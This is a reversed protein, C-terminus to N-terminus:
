LKRKPTIELLELAQRNRSEPVFNACILSRAKEGMTARAVDTLRLCRELADRLSGSDMECLFGNVGDEIVETPGPTRTSVVALGCSMAELLAIGLGENDSPLVFIDAMKLFGSVNECYGYFHIRAHSKLGAALKKYSEGEEGDGVLLLQLQADPDNAVLADFANILRDQRKQKSLRGNCLILKDSSSFGFKERLMVGQRADPAFRGADIGVYVVHMRHAPYYYYDVMRSKVEKSIALIRKSLWGRLTVPAMWAYWWLNLKPIIGFYKGKIKKPPLPAALVELSYVNGGTALFGAVFHGLQFQFFGNHVFVVSGARLKTLLRFMRWLSVVFSGCLVFPFTMTRVPIGKMKLKESFLDRTTILTVERRSYDISSFYDMLRTECGGWGCEEPINILFVNHKM